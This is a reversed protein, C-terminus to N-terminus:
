PDDDFETTAADFEAKPQFKLIETQKIYGFVEVGACMTGDPRFVYHVAVTDQPMGLIGKGNYRIFLCLDNFSWFSIHKTEFPRPKNFINLWDVVDQTTKFKEQRQEKTHVVTEDVAYYGPKYRELFKLIETEDTVIKM